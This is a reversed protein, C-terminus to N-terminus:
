PDKGKFLNRVDQPHWSYVRATLGRPTVTREEPLLTPPTVRCTLPEKAETQCEVLHM